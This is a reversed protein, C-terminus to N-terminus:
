GIIRGTFPGLKLSRNTLGSDALINDTVRHDGGFRDALARASTEAKPLVRGGQSGLTYCRLNLLRAWLLERRVTCSSASDKNRSHTPEPGKESKL